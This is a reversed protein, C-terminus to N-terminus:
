YRCHEIILYALLLVFLLAGQLSIATNLWHNRYYVFVQSDLIRKRLQLQIMAPTNLMIAFLPGYLIWVGRNFSFIDFPAELFSPAIHYYLTTSGFVVRVFLTLLFYSAPILLILGLIPITLPKMSIKM